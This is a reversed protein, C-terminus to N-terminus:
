GSTAGTILVELTGSIKLALLLSTVFEVNYSSGAYPVCTCTAEIKFESPLEDILLILSPAPM